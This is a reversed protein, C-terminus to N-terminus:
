CRRRSVPSSRRISRSTPRMRICNRVYHAYFGVGATGVRDEFREDCFLAPTSLGYIAAFRADMERDGAVAHAVRADVATLAYTFLNRPRALRLYLRTKQAWDLRTTPDGPAAEAGALPLDGPASLV